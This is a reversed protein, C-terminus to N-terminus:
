STIMIKTIDVPQVINPKVHIGVLFLMLWWFFVIPCNSMSPPMIGTRSVSIAM